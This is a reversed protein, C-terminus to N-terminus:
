DVRKINSIKWEEYELVQTNGCYECRYLSMGKDKKMAAGCKECKNNNESPIFYSPAKFTLIYTNEIYKKKSPHYDVINNNMYDIHIANLKVDIESYGNSNRYAIIRRGHVTLFDVEGFEFLSDKSSRLYKIFDEEIFNDLFLYNEDKLAKYINVMKVRAIDLFKEENFYPINLRIKDIVSENVPNTKEEQKINEIGSNEFDNNPINSKGSSYSILAFIGIIVIIPGLFDWNAVIFLFIGITVIGTILNKNDNM